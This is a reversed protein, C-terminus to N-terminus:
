QCAGEPLPAELDSADGAFRRLHLQGRGFSGASYAEDPPLVIARGHDAMAQRLLSDILENDRRRESARGALQARRTNEADERVWRSVSAWNNGGGLPNM